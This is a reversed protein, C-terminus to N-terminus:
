RGCPASGGTMQVQASVASNHLLPLNLAVAVFNAPHKEDDRAPCNYRYTKKKKMKQETHVQTHRESVDLGNAVHTRTRNGAM